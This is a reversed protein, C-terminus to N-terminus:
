WAPLLMCRWRQNMSEHTLNMLSQSRFQRHADDDVICPPMGLTPFCNHFIHNACSMKRSSCILLLECLKILICQDADHLHISNLAIHQESKSPFSVFNINWIPHQDLKHTTDFCRIGAICNWEVRVFSCTHTFTITWGKPTGHKLGLSQQHHALPFFALLIANLISIAQKLYKM